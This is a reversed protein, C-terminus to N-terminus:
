DTIPSYKLIEPKATKYLATFQRGDFNSMFSTTLTLAVELEIETRSDYQSQVAQYVSKTFETEDFMEPAAAFMSPVDAVDHSKIFAVLSNVSDNSGAISEFRAILKEKDLIKM